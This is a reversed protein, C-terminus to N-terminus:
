TILTLQRENFETVRAAHAIRARRAAHTELPTSRVAEAAAGFCKPGLPMGALWGAPKALDRHCRACKM